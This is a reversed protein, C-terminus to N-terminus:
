PKYLPINDGKNWLYRPTKNYLKYSVLNAATYTITMYPSDDELQLYESDTPASDGVDEDSIIMLTTYGVNNINTLGSANLTYTLTDGSSIGVTSIATALQTVSYVGSSAWGTFDNYWGTVMDEGDANFTGNILYMNFDTDSVDASAVYKLTASSVVSGQGLASTDFSLVARWGYYNGTLTQGVTMATKGVAGVTADRGGAYTAEGAYSLRGTKDDTDPIVTTTPDVTVPYSVPNPMDLDYTLVGNDYTVVVPIDVGKADWAVPKTTRFLFDGDDNTYILQGNSLEVNAATTITWSLKTPAKDNDLIYNQKFRTDTETAEINIDRLKFLPTYAVSYNLHTFSYGGTVKKTVTAKIPKYKGTGKDKYHKPKAYIKTVRKGGGIDYTESTETLTQSHSLEGQWWAFLVLIIIGLIIILFFNTLSKLM